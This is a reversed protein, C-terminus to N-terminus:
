KENEIDEMITNFEKLPSYENEIKRLLEDAEMEDFTYRRKRAYKEDAYKKVLRMIEKNNKLYAGFLIEGLKQFTIKDEVIKAKINIIQDPYLRLPTQKKNKISM